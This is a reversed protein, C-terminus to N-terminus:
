SIRRYPLPHLLEIVARGASAGGALRDCLGDRATADAEYEYTGSAFEVIVLDRTIGVHVRVVNSSDPTEFTVAEM